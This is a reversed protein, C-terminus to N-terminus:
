FNQYWYPYKGEIKLYSTGCTKMPKSFGNQRLEDAFEGIAILVLRMDVNIMCEASNRTNFESVEQSGLKGMVVKSSPVGAM